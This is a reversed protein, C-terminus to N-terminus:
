ILEHLTYNRIAEDFRCNFYKKSLKEIYDFFESYTNYECFEHYIHKNVYITNNNVHYLFTDEYFIFIPTWSIFNFYIKVDPNNLHLRDIFLKEFDNENIYGEYTKM